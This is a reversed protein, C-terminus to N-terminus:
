FSPPAAATTCLYPIRRPLCLDLTSLQSLLRGRRAYQIPIVWRSRRLRHIAVLAVEVIALSRTIPACMIDCEPIWRLEFRWAWPHDGAHLWHADFRSPKQNPCGSGMGGRLRGFSASLPAELVLVLRIRPTETSASVKANERYAPKVSVLLKPGTGATHVATEKGQRQGFM